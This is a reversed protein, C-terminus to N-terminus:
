DDPRNGPALAAPLAELATVPAGCATGSCVYAVPGEPRAMRLRLAGPLGAADAPIAFVLRRPSFVTSAVHAWEALDCERGRLVVIQPPHLYEDLASLLTAHAQPYHDLGEWALQLTGEAARLYRPEGLLHGLRALAFTAVANGSPLAEDALGRSRHLLQEHDHATFFFGGQATDHFRSLLEEALWVAFDLTEARWNAQLLELAADLLFAHDDLYANFRARGNKWTAQLRGAVVLNAQLFGLADGAARVLDGRRLARGAIALGRILLANWSALIKDDRGPWVRRSRADLLKARASDLLRQVTSPPQGTREALTGLPECVRLHWHGEFNADRDLGFRPAFVTFEPETLLAKAQAPTWVYFRGEEGESDADLSSYFAGEPARMDRLLWDATDNAVRRYLEDGSVLFMRCYIALLPGNDYLMKEFHPISWYRDVSYRCFGGGLQDFIGGEAMRTLTLACMYLAHVDPEPTGASHWWTRLLQELTAAPPFKPAGGFGGFEADFQGGLFERFRALPAANLTQAAVPMAAEIGALAERLAPGQQAMEPPRRHYYEAARALVETFAPMGYRPQPPFYTGAFFPVLEDPTLFMTLPWGGGRRMLLHHASQYVRDIDPREERDVKINVYLENMVQATAEDEFSEHAMVHCWHCASYGISLLIPKDESRARALAEEGWPHWDVPNAAHQLLYPSTEHALRNV